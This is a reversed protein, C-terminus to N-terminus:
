AKFKTLVAINKEAFSKSRKMFSLSYSRLCGSFFQAAQGM